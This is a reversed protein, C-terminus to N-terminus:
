ATAPPDNAIPQSDNAENALFQNFKEMKENQRKIAEDITILELTSTPAGYFTYGARRAALKYKQILLAAGKLQTILTSKSFANRKAQRNM